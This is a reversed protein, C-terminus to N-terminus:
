NIIVIIIKGYYIKKEASILKGTQIFYKYNYFSYNNVNNTFLTLM